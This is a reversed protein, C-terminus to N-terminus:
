YIPHFHKLQKNNTQSLSLPTETKTPFKDSSILFDYVGMITLTVIKTKYKLSMYRYELPM